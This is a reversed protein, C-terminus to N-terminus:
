NSRVTIEISRKILGEVSKYWEKLRSITVNSDQGHSINHRNAIISGIASRKEHSLYEELQARWEDDFDGYLNLIKDIGPNQFRKLRRSVYSSIRRDSRTQAYHMLMRSFCVEMSATISICIYKAWHATIEPDDPLYKVKDFLDRIKDIEAHIDSVM